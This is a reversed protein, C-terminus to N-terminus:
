LREYLRNYLKKLPKPMWKIKDESTQKTKISGFSEKENIHQCFMDTLDACIDNDNHTHEIFIQTYLEPNEPNSLVIQPIPKKHNLIQEYIEKSVAYTNQLTVIYIPNGDNSLKYDCTDLFGKVHTNTKM